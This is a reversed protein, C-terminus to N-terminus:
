RRRRKSPSQSSYDNNVWIRFLFFFNDYYNIALTVPPSPLPGIKALSALFDYNVKEKIPIIQFIYSNVGEGELRASFFGTHSFQATIASHFSSWPYFAGTEFGPNVLINRVSIAKM